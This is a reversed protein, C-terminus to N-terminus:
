DHKCANTGSVDTELTVVETLVPTESGNSYDVIHKSLPSHVDLISYKSGQINVRHPINSFFQKNREPSKLNWTLGFTSM